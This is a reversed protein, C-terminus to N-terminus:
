LYILYKACYHMKVVVVVVVVVVTRRIFDVGECCPGIGHKGGFKTPSKFEFGKSLGLTM